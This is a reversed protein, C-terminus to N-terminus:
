AYAGQCMWLKGMAYRLSMRDLVVSYVTSVQWVLGATVLRQSGCAIRTATVSQQREDSTLIAESSVLTEPTLAFGSFSEFNVILLGASEAAKRVAPDIRKVTGKTRSFEFEEGEAGFRFRTETGISVTHLFPTPTAADSSPDSRDSLLLGVASAATTELFNRRHM